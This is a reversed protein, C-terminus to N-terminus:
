RGEAADDRSMGHVLRDLTAYYPARETIDYEGAALDAAVRRCTQTREAATGALLKEAEDDGQERVAKMQGALIRDAAQKGSSKQIAVLLATRFLRSADLFEGNRARKQWTELLGKGGAATAGPMADCTSALASFYHQLTLMFGVAEWGTEIADSDATSVNRATPKAAAVAEHKWAVHSTCSPYPPQEGPVRECLRIPMLEALRRSWLDADIRPPASQGPYREAWQVTYYDHTGKIVVILATEGHAPKSGPVEGCGAVAAYTAHGEVAPADLEVGYYSDPCTRMFGTALNRAFAGPTVEPQDALGAAGTLSVMQSWGDLTDGRRVSEFLYHKGDVKENARLFGPPLRWAVLQSFVPMVAVVTDPEDAHAQPVAGLFTAAWAVSVAAWRRGAM